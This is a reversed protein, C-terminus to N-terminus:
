LALNVYVSFRSKSTVNGGFLDQSLPLAYNAGFIFQKVVFESGITGTTLTGNTDKLTENYQTIEKFTDHSFGLFPMINMKSTKFVTFAKTSLSLQNGFQYNNKNEGKFYYTALTNIGFKNSGYNYGLSLMADLSGTGVQFGPNVNNSLEQEFTGTPLKAGLGFQLSHGTAVKTTNYDITKDKNETKKKYFVHKYWGVISADGLGNLQQSKGQFERNLDQYPLNVSLMFVKKVPIQAWLQYTNITEKSVPSNSYIGNKSEFTQNIYRLGVFNANSLTGFGFSGSTTTCGCLDCKIELPSFKNHTHGCPEIKHMGFVSTAMLSIFGLLTYKFNQLDKM